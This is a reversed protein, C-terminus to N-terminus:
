FLRFLIGCGGIAGGWLGISLVERFLGRYWSIGMSVLIMGLFIWDIYNELNFIYNGNM